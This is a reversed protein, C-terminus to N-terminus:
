DHMVKDRSGATKEKKHMVTGCRVSSSDREMCTSFACSSVIGGRSGLFGRQGPDTLALPSTREVGLRRGELELGAPSREKRGRLDVWLVGAGEYELIVERGQQGLSRRWTHGGSCLTPTPNM